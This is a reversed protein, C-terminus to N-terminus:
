DGQVIDHTALSGIQKSPTVLHSLRSQLLWNPDINVM